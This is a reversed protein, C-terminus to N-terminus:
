VMEEIVSVIKERDEWKIYCDSPLPLGAAQLVIVRESLNKRVRNLKRVDRMDGYGKVEILIDRVRFDPLYRYKELDYWEPEYKYDFGSEELMMDIEAEYSSRVMRDTVEVYVPEPTLDSIDMNEMADVVGESIKRKVEISLEKGTQQERAADAIKQRTDPSLTREEMAESIKRKFEEGREIGSLRESIKQCTEESRSKGSWVDKGDICESCFKGTKQNTNYRFKSGCVVCETIEVVLSEGHAKAHHIKMGKETQFKKSCGGEWPCEFM